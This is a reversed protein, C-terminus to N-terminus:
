PHFQTSAARGSNTASADLASLEAARSAPLYKARITERQQDLENLQRVAEAKIPHFRSAAFRKDTPGQVVTQCRNVYNILVALYRTILPGLEQNMRWQFGQADQANRLLNPSAVSADLNLDCRFTFWQLGELDRVSRQLAPLADAGDWQEIVEQLTVSAKAPMRSPAFRVDVPVDLAAQL